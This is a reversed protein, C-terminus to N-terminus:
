RSGMMRQTAHPNEMGVFYGVGGVGGVKGGMEGGQSPSTTTADGYMAVKGLGETRWGDAKKFICYGSGQGCAMAHM